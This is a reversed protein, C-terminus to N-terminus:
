PSPGNPAPTDQPHPLYPSIVTALVQTVEIYEKKLAAPNM